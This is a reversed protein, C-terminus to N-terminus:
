RPLPAEASDRAAQGAEPAPASVDIGVRLARLGQVGQLEELPLDEVEGTVYGRAALYQLYGRYEAAEGAQSYVIVLQRPQTIREATGRVLAKDIRKKIVEYRVNYAGDVDFRREDFRFRISLPTHHALVLHTTTLPVALRPLVAETRRAIGCTVMLQWLRLNRLYLEDFRGDEILSRGVYITHDVGDTRQREFYHPFMSQALDEEADLYASITDSVLTVSEEYDRRRLYVTGLRPDLAVRYEGLRERVEPGFDALQEFLPEVQQRIFSLVAVEDGSSLAQEVQQAYREIRYATEDLIPLPRAARAAEVVALALRLHVGLDEQVALNRQVSSGRIDTAAYLPHVDRFVIPELEVAEGSEHEEISDLVARRFRWEVSPHISTCKEKIVAQVRAELEDLSRRVAMSFLPLVERLKFLSVPGLDGANRSSLELTGIARDQYHLPAVLVNRVGRELLKEEYHTRRPDDILDDVVVPRGHTVARDHVSGSFDSIRLHETDAFICGHEMDSNYSLVFVREDHFAALSLRLAPRRLLARLKDELEQFRETSVISEKDILDREIASLVEQDTVDTARVVVFGSFEFADPPFLEALRQPPTGGRVLEQRMADDLTPLPRLARVEIFRTDFQLRFHRELGSEPDHTAIILPYDVDLTMGYHARLIADYARLMRGHVAAEPEVNLTGQLVGEEDLLLRRFSPTAHLAQMGFALMAAAFDQEWSAAPFVRSMLAEILDAHRELVKPDEIPARLEPARDLGRCVARAVDGAVGPDATAAEWAAVLPALSLERRFPFTAAPLDLRYRPRPPSSHMRGM